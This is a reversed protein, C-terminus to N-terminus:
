LFVASGWSEAVYVEPANDARVEVGGCLFEKGDQTGWHCQICATLREGSRPARTGHLATWPIRYTFTYGKGDARAKYVGEVGRPNVRATAADTGPIVCCGAAREPTSYWLRIDNIPADGDDSPVDTVPQLHIQLADTDWSKRMDGDFALANRMPYPDAVEGGVYLAQDDYMLSINAYCYDGFQDPTRITVAHERNWQDPDGDLPPPEKARPVHIESCSAETHYTPSPPDVVEGATVDLETSSFRLAFLDADHMVFRLRVPRGILAALDGGDKWRVGADLADGFLPNMDNLGFGDLVKGGADQIEVRISGAASTAYNLRLCRGDFVLPKTVFEGGQYDAHMSVFGHPRVALRRLRGPVDPQMYHESVYMSWETASTPVIGWVPYNNRQRWNRADLGPRIWADRYRTWHVGDRGAMLLGDNCGPTKPPSEDGHRIWRRQTYRNPFSLYIHEAGPCPLTANTYLQVDQEDDAYRNEVPESWHIFDDSGASQICRIRTLGEATERNVWVRTYSRYCGAVADWFATNVTDFAGSYKLPADRLLRWRIGDPSAMAYLQGASSQLGKYRASPDCDPNTDLFPPPVGPRGASVLNNATSGAFSTLGLNPRVFTKGGDHSEALAILTVRDLKTNGQIAARYYLRVTDGETVVSQPFASGSEWPADFVFAERREPHKLDFRVDRTRDILYDDVFLERRTGVNIAQM